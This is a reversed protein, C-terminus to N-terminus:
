LELNLKRRTCNEPLKRYIIKEKFKALKLEGINRSKEVSLIFTGALAINALFTLYM